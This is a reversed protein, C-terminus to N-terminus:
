IALLVIMVIIAGLLYSIKDKIAFLVPDEDLEGRVALIWLRGSWYGLTPCVFWLMSPSRYNVSVDPSNLYIAIVLVSMLSSGCGYALVFPIDSPRYGRRNLPKDEQAGASAMLESHRKALALSLFLCMFFALAWHSIAIGTCAGGAWVRLTYLGALIFVDVLLKEKFYFTYLLTLAFYAGLTAAFSLSLPIAIAFAGLLLVASTLAGTVPSVDGAAFPRKQKRAHLRDAELDMLDNLIYVASGCLSFAAFGLLVNFILAPNTFQHGLFIAAFLLLNKAWQYVRMAKLLSRVGPRDLPEIHDYSDAIKRLQAVLFMNSGAIVARRSEKWIPLDARSDGIYDFSKKGYRHIIVSLKKKGILHTLEDSGQCHDFLNLHRAVREVLTHHAGSILTIERNALKERKLYELVEPRYPLLAVNISVLQSLRHWLYAQGRMLWFPLLLAYQPATRALALISEHLTNTKILTGDLDVCLPAAIQRSLFSSTSVKQKGFGTAPASPEQATAM